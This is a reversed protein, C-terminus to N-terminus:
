QLQFEVTGIFNNQESSDLVVQYMGSREVTFTRTSFIVLRSGDDPPKIYPLPSLGSVSEVVNETITFVEGVQADFSAVARQGLTTLTLTFRQGRSVAVGYDDAIAILEIPVTGTYAGVPTLLVTYIGAVNATFQLDEENSATVVIENSSPDLVSLSGSGVGGDRNVYIRDGQGATFEASVSQGPSNVILEFQREDSPTVPITEGVSYVTFAYPEASSEMFRIQYPTNAGITVLGLDSCQSRRKLVTSQANLLQWEGACNTALESAIYVKDNLSSPLTALLQERSDLVGEVLVNLSVIGIDASAPEVISFSYEGTDGSQSFVSLKVQGEPLEFPIDCSMALQAADGDLPELLFSFSQVVSCPSNVQVSRNIGSPINLTYQDVENKSSLQGAGPTPLRPSVTANVDLAITSAASVYANASVANVAVGALEAADDLLQEDGDFLLDYVCGQLLFGTGVGADLCRQTASERQPTAVDSLSQLDLVSYAGDVLPDYESNFISESGLRLWDTLYDGYLTDTDEVTFSLGASTQLDNSPDGDFNGLLGTVTGRLSEHLAMKFANGSHSVLLDLKGVIKVYTHKNHRQVFSGQEDLDIWGGLSIPVDVGNVVIVDHLGPASNKLSRDIPDNIVITTNGHRVAFAKIRSVTANASLRFQRAQVTLEASEIYAYDGAGQFGYGLGDHTVLHPDGWGISPRRPSSTIPSSDYPPEERSPPNIAPLICDTMASSPTPSIGNNIGAAAGIIKNFGGLVQNLVEGGVARAVLSRPNCDPSAMAITPNILGFVCFCVLPLCNLLRKLETHINM